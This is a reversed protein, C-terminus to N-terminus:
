AEMRMVAISHETPPGARIGRTPGLKVLPQYDKYRGTFRLGVFDHSQPLPCPSDPPMLARAVQGTIPGFVYASDQVEEPAVYWSQAYGSAPVFLGRLACSATTLPIGRLFSRRDM